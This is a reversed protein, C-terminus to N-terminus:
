GPPSQETVTCNAFGFTSENLDATTQDYQYYPTPDNRVRSIFTPSDASDGAFNFQMWAHGGKGAPTGGQLKVCYVDGVQITTTPAGAIQKALGGDAHFNADTPVTDFNVLKGNGLYAITSTTGTWGDQLDYNNTCANTLDRMAVWEIDYTDTLNNFDIFAANFGYSGHGEVNCSFTSSPNVAYCDRVVSGMDVTVGNAVDTLATAGIGETTGLTADDLEVSLIEGAGVPVSNLTFSVSGSGLGPSFPGATGTIPASLPGSVNYYVMDEGANFLKSKVGETSLAVSMDVVRTPSVLQNSKCGWLLFLPLFVAALVIQYEKLKM